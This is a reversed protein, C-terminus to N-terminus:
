IFIIFFHFFILICDFYIVYALDKPNSKVTEALVIGDHDFIVAKAWDKQTKLLTTLEQETAM